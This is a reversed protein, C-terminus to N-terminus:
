PLLNVVSWSFPTWYSMTINADRLRDGTWTNCTNVLNYSNNSAYFFDDRGYGKHKEGKFDIDNLIKDKLSRKQRKTLKLVKIDRYRHINQIYSIHILSPTNIFLAKLTTSLRLDDWTPTNLYTEKDGWGFALYGSKKRKFEPFLSRNLDQLNFVIDTHMENYLVYLTQNNELSSPTVKKPFLTLLYVTLLYSIPVVLLLSLLYKLVTKM